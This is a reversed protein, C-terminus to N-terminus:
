IDYDNKEELEKAKRNDEISLLTYYTALASVTAIIGNCITLIITGKVLTSTDIEGNKYFKGIKYASVWGPITSIYGVVRAIYDKNEVAKKIIKKM